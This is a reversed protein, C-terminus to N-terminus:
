LGYDEYRKGTLEHLREKAQKLYDNHSSKSESMLKKGTLLWIDALLLEAQQAVKLDKIEDMANFIISLRKRITDQSGYYYYLAGGESNTGEGMVTMGLKEVFNIGNYQWNCLITIYNPVAGICHYDYNFLNCLSFFMDIERQYDEEETDTPTDQYNVIPAIENNKYNDWDIGNFEDFGAFMKTSCTSPVSVIKM